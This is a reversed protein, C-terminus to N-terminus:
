QCIANGNGTMYCRKLTDGTVGSNPIVVKPSAASPRRSSGRPPPVETGDNQYTQFNQGGYTGSYGGTGDPQVELNRYQQADVVSPFVILVIALVAEKM